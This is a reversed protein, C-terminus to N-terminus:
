ALGISRPESNNESIIIIKILLLSLLLQLLLLLLLLLLLVKTRIIKAHSNPAKAPLPHKPQM